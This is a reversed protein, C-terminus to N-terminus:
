VSVQAVGERWQEMHRTSEELKKRHRDKSANSNGWLFLMVDDEDWRAQDESDVIGEIEPGNGGGVGDTDREQTRRTTRSPGATANRGGGRKVNRAADRKHIATKRDHTTRSPGMEVPKPLPPRPPKAHKRLVEIGRGWMKIAAAGYNYHLLLESPKPVHTHKKFAADSNRPIMSHAIEGPTELWQLTYRTNSPYATDQPVTRQHRQPIDNTRLIQNPTQIDGALYPPSVDFVYTPCVKLIAVRRQDFVANIQLSSFVGNRVDNIDNLNAVNEGYKPRNAVILCFWQLPLSPLHDLIM